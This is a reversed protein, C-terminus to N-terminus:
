FCIFPGCIPLNLFVKKFTATNATIESNNIEELKIWGVITEAESMSGKAFFDDGEGEGVCVGVRVGV